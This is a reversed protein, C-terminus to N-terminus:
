IGMMLKDFWFLAEITLVNEFFVKFLGNGFYAKHVAMRALWSLYTLKMHVVVM